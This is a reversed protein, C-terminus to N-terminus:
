PTHPCFDELSSSLLQFTAEPMCASRVGCVPCEWKVEVLDSEGSPVKSIINVENMPVGIGIRWSPFLSKKAPRPVGTSPASLDFNQYQGSNYFEAVGGRERKHAPIQHHRGFKWWQRWEIIPLM